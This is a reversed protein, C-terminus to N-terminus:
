VLDGPVSSKVDRGISSTYVEPPFVKLSSTRNVGNKTSIALFSLRLQDFTDSSQSKIIENNYSAM